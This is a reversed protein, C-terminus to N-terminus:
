RRGITFADLLARADKLPHADLSLNHLLWHALDDVTVDATRDSTSGGVTIPTYEGYGSPIVGQKDCDSAHPHQSLAREVVDCQHSLSQWQQSKDEALNCPNFHRLFARASSVLWRVERASKEERLRAEASANAAEPAPSACHRVAALVLAPDAGDTNQFAANQYEGVGADAGGHNPIDKKDTM